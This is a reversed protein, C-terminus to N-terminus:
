RAAHEAHADWYTTRVTYTPRVKLDAKGGNYKDKQEAIRQESETSAAARVTSKLDNEPLVM